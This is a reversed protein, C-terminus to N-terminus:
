SILNEPENWEYPTNLIDDKITTVMPINSTKSKKLADELFKELAQRIIVSKNVKKIRATRQLNKALDTPIKVSTTQM